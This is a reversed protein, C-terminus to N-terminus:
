RIRGYTQRTPGFCERRTGPRSPVGFCEDSQADAPARGPSPETPAARPTFSSTGWSWAPRGYRGDPGFVFVMLAGDPHLIWYEKVGYRECLNLKRVQDHSLSGPSLIEVVIDPAGQCGRRQRKAPDCIM